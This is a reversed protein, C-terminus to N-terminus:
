DTKLLVSLGVSVRCFLCTHRRKNVIGIIGELLCLKLQPSKDLILFMMDSYNSLATVFKRQKYQKEKRKVRSLLISRADKGDDSHRDTQRDCEHDTDFHHL